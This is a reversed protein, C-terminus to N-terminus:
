TFVGRVPFRECLDFESVADSDVVDPLDLMMEEFFVRVAGRGLDEISGDALAGPVDSDGM